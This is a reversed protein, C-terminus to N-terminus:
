TKSLGGPAAAHDEQIVEALSRSRAAITIITQEWWYDVVSSDLRLFQQRCRESCPLAESGPVENVDQAAVSRLFDHLPAM